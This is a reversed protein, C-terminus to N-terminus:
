ARNKRKRRLAILGAGSFAALLALPLMPTSDGTTPVVPSALLEIYKHGLDPTYAEAPAVHYAGGPDTAVDNNSKWRYAGGPFSLTLMSPDPIAGGPSKVILRGGRVTATANLATSGATDSIVTVEGGTMTLNNSNLGGANYDGTARAHVTGGNLTASGTSIGYTPGTASLTGRNVTVSDCYVGHSRTGTLTLNGGNVTVVKGSLGYNTCVATITGSQMVLSGFSFGRYFNGSVTLSGSGTVTLADADGCRLADSSAGTGSRSLTSSGVLRLTLSGAWEIGHISNSDSSLVSLAANDLTLTGGDASLSATGGGCAISGGPALPAGAIKVETAARADRVPLAFCLCLALVACVAMSATRGIRM